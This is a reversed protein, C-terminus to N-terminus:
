LEDKEGQRLNKFHLYMSEYEESMEQLLKEGKETLSYYKKPVGKEQGQWQPKLLKEKTLRSLLPYLTGEKTAFGRRGLEQLIQLGYLPSNQALIRLIMLELYGKRIQIFWNKLFM